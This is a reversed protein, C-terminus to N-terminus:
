STENSARRRLLSLTENERAKVECAGHNPFLRRYFTPTEGYKKAREEASPKLVVPKGCYKCVSRSM